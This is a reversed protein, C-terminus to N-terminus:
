YSTGYARRRSDRKGSTRVCSLSMYEDNYDNISHISWESAKYFKVNRLYYTKGVTASSFIIEFNSLKLTDTFSAGSVINNIGYRTGNIYINGSTPVPFRPVDITAFDPHAPVEFDVNDYILSYNSDRMYNNGSSAYYGFRRITVADSGSAAIQFTLRDSELVNLATSSSYNLDGDSIVTITEGDSTPAPGIGFDNLWGTAGSTPVQLVTSEYDIIKDFGEPEYFVSNGSFNPFNKLTKLNPLYIDAKGTTNHGARQQVFNKDTKNRIYAPVQPITIDHADVSGDEVGYNDKGFITPRYYTVKRAQGTQFSLRKLLGSMNIGIKGM